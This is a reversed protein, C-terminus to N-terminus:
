VHFASGRSNLLRLYHTCPSLFCRPSPSHLAQKVRHRVQVCIRMAVFLGIHPNDKLLREYTWVNRYLSLLTFRSFNLLIQQPVPKCVCCGAARNLRKRWITDLGRVGGDGGDRDLNLVAVSMLIVGVFALAGSSTAFVHLMNRPRRDPANQSLNLEPDHIDRICSCRCFRFSSSGLLLAFSRGPISHVAHVM